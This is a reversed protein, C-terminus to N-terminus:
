AGIDGASPTATSLHPEAWASVGIVQDDCGLPGVFQAGIPLGATTAGIPLCVSPGGLATWLRSMIPDGTSEASPAPGLAAPALFADYGAFATELAARAAAFLDLAAQYDARSVAAGSACLQAFQPSLAKAHVDQEFAYNRAAEYAMATRHAEALGAMAAPLRVEEIPGGAKALVAAARETLAQAQRDMEDWHFGRVLGIRPREPAAAPPAAPRALLVDRLLPLDGASRTLTGLSDFCEAFPRIGSLSLEGLSAKYGVVGCFAAPRTVSAATQSGFAMPVMFDAVAAASGSSSGGPTRSLDHPNRTKGPSFFAFETTVTKGLVIAGARRVLAVCAADWTPRRDAYPAFGLGTPLDHTDIIDKVGIPVGHLPGTPATRDCARAAAMAREADVAGVWAGVQAERAAIRELCAAVLAESTLDGSRLRAAAEALTLLHPGQAM